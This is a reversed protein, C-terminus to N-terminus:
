LIGDVSVHLRWSSSNRLARAIDVRLIGDLFSGGAGVSWMSARDSIRNPDGTWGFDSFLVLRAAPLSTGIEGRARWFAPGFEHGIEYGRISRVGGLFWQSQPPKGNIPLSSSAHFQTTGAAVEVAGALKFPLPIGLQATVAERVFDYTGTSAETYAEAALRFGAPNQGWSGRLSLAAGVQDARLAPLNPDFLHADDFLHPISFDSEKSVPRQQEAFLRLSYWQTNSEVPRLLVEGGTTRYYDREDRGAFFAGLGTSMGGFGSPKDMVDLRRYGAVRMTTNLSNHTLGLELNPALDAVGLRGTADARLRGFDFDGRAGVSLAEIKNYRVLGNGRLGWAFAAARAQWPPDALKKLRDMLQALEPDSTLTIQDGYITTPLQDSTLLAASDAVTVSYLKSCAERELRRRVRATDRALAEQRERIRRTRATDKALAEREERRRVSDRAAQRAREEPTTPEGIEANIDMSTEPRCPRQESAPLSERLVVSLTTDGTVEYESYAREYHLPTKVPGMQVSGEAAFLRPLWWRLHVLSYEITIYQLEARMPTFSMNKNGASDTAIRVFGINRISTGEPTEMENFDVDRALRFTTQVLSYTDSDIWFSGTVLHFDSRRPEVKLEVLKITREGLNITTSDGTSFRYHAESGSALPHRLATIDVSILADSDMPDFALRPLFKDLDKPVGPKATLIPVAERAGLATINIPGGRRWDIRSATERRYLLRDRLRTRLGASMREKVIAQYSTISRDVARRRERARVHLERAREDRYTDAPDPVQPAQASVALALLFPVM